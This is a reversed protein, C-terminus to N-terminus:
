DRENRSPRNTMKAVASVLWALGVNVGKVLALGCSVCNDRSVTIYGKEPIM